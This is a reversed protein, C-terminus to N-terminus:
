LKLFINQKELSRVFTWTILFFVALGTAVYPAIVPVCAASSVAMYTSLATRVSPASVEVVDAGLRVLLEVTRRFCELVGRSNGPGSLEAVVGVRLGSLDAVSVGGDPAGRYAEGTLVGILLGLDAASRALPGVRDLGHAFPVVGTM